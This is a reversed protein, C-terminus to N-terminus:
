ISTLHPTPWDWRWSGCHDGAKLKCSPRPVATSKSMGALRAGHARPARWAATLLPAPARREVFSLRLPLKGSGRMAASLYSRNTTDFPHLGM